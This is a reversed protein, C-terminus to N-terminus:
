RVDAPARDSALQADALVGGLEDPHEVASWLHDLLTAGHKRKVPEQGSGYFHGSVVELNAARIVCDALGGGYALWLDIGYSDAALALRPVACVLFGCSPLIERDDQRSFRTSLTAIPHGMADTLRLDLALDEFRLRGSRAEYGIVITMSDGSGVSAVDRGSRDLIRLSTLRILGDGTRDTRSALDDDSGLRQASYTSLAAETTGDFVLRGDRLVIARTALRAIATLDHSVFIVTQGTRGVEQMRGLCKRQFALDGVALVEDVMLIAPELHAAVAFALRLYMGSSYFKVPTDLFKEVEAFEVIRDFKALIEARKMGLIAGSLFVNERGTLEPHFGTGVELLSGVRGYVDAEGTTPETVRSLVKLLTSKGAGNRGIVGLVEGQQLEFDISSLAWVYDARRRAWSRYTNWRVLASLSDRLTRYPEQRAGIRYQKGLSAARVAIRSM